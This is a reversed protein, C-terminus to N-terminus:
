LFINLKINFLFKIINKNLKIIINKLTITLIFSIKINLFTSQIM